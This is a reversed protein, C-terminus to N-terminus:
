YRIIYEANHLGLEGLKQIVGSVGTVTYGKMGVSKAGKVNIQNDDFFLIRDPPFGAAEAVHYFADQDPKLHGTLHSPFTWDFFHIFKMELIIRRWHLENTNSLVGLSFHASLEALLTEAGAYTGKPWQIFEALFQEPSVPLNFETIMADAFHGASSRGSEFDRVARSSLWQRWLREGSGLHDAWALMQQVGSLEVIVGGLDFLILDFPQKSIM